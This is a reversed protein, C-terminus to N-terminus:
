LGDCQKKRARSKRVRESKAARGEPTLREWCRRCLQGHIPQSTNGGTTNRGCAACVPPKWFAGAHQRERWRRQRDANTPDPM